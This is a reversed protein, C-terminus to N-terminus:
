NIHIPSHGQDDFFLCLIILAVAISLDLVQRSLDIAMISIKSKNLIGHKVVFSVVAPYLTKTMIWLPKSRPPMPLYLVKGGERMAEGELGCVIAVNGAKARGIGLSLCTSGIISSEDIVLGREASSM